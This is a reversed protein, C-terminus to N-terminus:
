RGIVGTHGRVDIVDGSVQTALDAIITETDDEGRASRLIKVKVAERHRLQEELEDVVSSRGGKGVQLTVDLDQIATHSERNSMNGPNQIGM